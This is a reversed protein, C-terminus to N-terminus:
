LEIRELDFEIEDLLEKVDITDWRQVSMEFAKDCQRDIAEIGGRRYATMLSRVTLMEVPSQVASATQEQKQEPPNGYFMLLGVAVIIVAAAALRMMKSRLVIGASSTKRTQTTDDMAAFSDALTRKDMEDSSTVHPKELRVLQETKELPKM